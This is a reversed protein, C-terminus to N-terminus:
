SGDRLLVEHPMDPLSNQNKLYVKADNIIEMVLELDKEQAKVLM